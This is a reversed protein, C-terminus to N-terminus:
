PGNVLRYLLSQREEEQVPAKGANGNQTVDAGQLAARGALLGASVTVAGATRVKQFTISFTSRWKTEEDQTARMSLIALNTMVGWPTEVTFLQRGKWLAYFYLFARRQKTQDPPAASRAKYFQWLDDSATASTAIEARDAALEAQAQEAGPTLEPLLNPNVPLPNEVVATIERPPSIAAIEAVLGRVTYEEPALAIHDSVSFNEEVYNQSIMSRLNVEEDEPIDFLFGAIGPPPNNPRVIAQRQLETLSRLVDFVSPQDTPITDM